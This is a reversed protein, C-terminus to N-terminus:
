YDSAVKVLNFAERERKGSLRDADLSNRALNPNPSRAGWCPLSYDIRHISDFSHFPKLDAFEVIGSIVSVRAPFEQTLHGTESEAQWESLRPRQGEDALRRRPLRRRLLVGLRCSRGRWSRKRVLVTFEQIREHM